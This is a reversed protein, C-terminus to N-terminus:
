SLGVIQLTKTMKDINTYKFLPWTSRCGGSFLALLIWSVGIFWAGDLVGEECRDLWM